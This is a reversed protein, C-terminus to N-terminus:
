RVTLLRTSLERLTGVLRRRDPVEAEFTTNMVGHLGDLLFRATIEADPMRFEKSRRGARVFRVLGEYFRDTIHREQWASQHFLVHLFDRHDLHYDVLHGVFRDMAHVREGTPAAELEEVASLLEAAYRAQLGAVLADKSEFYLYVTGKAIGAAAAVDAMTAVGIGKDLFVRTAADLIQERRM